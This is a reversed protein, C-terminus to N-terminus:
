RFHEILVVDRLEDGYSMAFRSGDQSWDFFYIRQGPVEAMKRPPEGSLPQRWLGEGFDRYIVASGDPSWQVGNNLTAGRPLEFRAVPTAPAAVSFIALRVSSGPPDVYSCAFKTGDPSVRPWNGGETLRVPEGGDIPQKFIGGRDGDSAAFLMWRGDPTVDPAGHNGGTTLQRLGSGDASVRWIESGGNRNSVFVINRGDRTMKPFADSFGPSTLATAGGGGVPTIWLSSSNNFFSVYVIRGDPTWTLGSSGDLKGLSRSTIHQVSAIADAPAVWISSTVEGRVSLLRAGDDSVSVSARGYRSLDTTISRLEGTAVALHWIHFDSNAGVANFVIGSGDRLWVVRGIEDWARPSLTRRAGDAVTIATLLTQGATTVGVALTTGDPSWGAGLTSFGEGASLAAVEREEGTHLDGVVMTAVRREISRRTFAVRGGDPSISFGGDLAAIKKAPGGGLSIEFLAGQASYFLSQSDSAFALGRYSMNEAPRLQRPGDGGIEGEWLSEQGRDFITYAFHRGDPALAATSVNGTTTLQRADSTSRAAEGGPATRRAASQYVVLALLATLAAAVVWAPAHSRRPPPVDPVIASPVVADSTLAAVFEYGRGPVTVVFRNEGRREGLAKRLASMHVTLNGEEVSQNPWLQELLEDKTLVRGRNEILALLLEFAKPNIPVLEDARLLLRRGADVTFGDFRYLRAKTAPLM